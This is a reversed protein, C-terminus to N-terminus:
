MECRHNYRVPINCIHYLNINNILGHYKINFLAAM